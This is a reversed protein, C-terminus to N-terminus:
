LPSRDESAERRNRVFVGAVRATRNILPQVDGVMQGARRAVSPGNVGGDHRQRRMIPAPIRSLGLRMLVLATLLLSGTAIVDVRTVGVAVVCCAALVLDAIRRARHNFWQRLGLRGPSLVAVTTSGVAVIFLAITTSGSRRIASYALLLGLLYEVAQHATPVLPARRDVTRAPKTRRVTLGLGNPRHASAISMCGDAGTTATRGDSHRSQSPGWWSPGEDRLRVDLRARSLKHASTDFPM